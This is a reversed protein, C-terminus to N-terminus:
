PARPRYKRYNPTALRSLWMPCRHSITWCKLFRNGSQEDQRMGPVSEEGYWEALVM